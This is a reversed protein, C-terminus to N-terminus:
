AFCLRKIHNMIIDKKTNFVEANYVSLRNTGRYLVTKNKAACFVDLFHLFKQYDVSDNLIVDGQSDKLQLSHIYRKLIHM